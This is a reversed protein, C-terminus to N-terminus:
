RRWLRWRGGPGRYDASGFFWNPLGVWKWPQWPREARIHHENMFSALEEPDIHIHAQRLADLLGDHGLRPHRKHLRKIQEAIREDIRQYQRSSM